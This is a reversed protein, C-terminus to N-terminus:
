FKKWKNKPDEFDIINIIIQNSIDKIIIQNSIDKTIIQQAIGVTMYNKLMKQLFSHTKLLNNFDSQYLIKTM